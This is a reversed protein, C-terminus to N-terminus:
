LAEQIAKVTEPYVEFRTEYDDIIETEEDALIVWGVEVTYEEGSPKGNIETNAPLVFEKEVVYVNEEVENLSNLNETVVNITTYDSM